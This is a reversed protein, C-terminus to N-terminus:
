EDEGREPDGAKDADGQRMEVALQRIMLLEGIVLWGGAGLDIGPVAAEHGFELALVANRDRDALDRPQHDLRKEGRLIAVEVRMVADIRAGDEARRHGIDRAEATTLPRDACRRDSLLDDAMEEQGVLQGDRALDLLRHEGVADLTRQALVADEFDIEVLDIEAGAGIADGGGGIGIELLREVPQAEGFNSKERGQRLRGIIVVRDMMRRRCPRPAVPHQGAHGIEAPGAFLARLCRHGLREDHMQAAIGRGVRGARLVPIEGLLHPALQDAPKALFGDILAAQRPARAIVRDILLHRFGREALANDVIVPAMAPAPREDMQRATRRCLAGEGARGVRGTEAM